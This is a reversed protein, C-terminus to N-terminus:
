QNWIAIVSIGSGIATVRRVQLYLQFVGVPLSVTVAQSDLDDACIFSISGATSVAVILSGTVHGLDTTTSATVAAAHRGASVPENNTAFFPDTATKPM